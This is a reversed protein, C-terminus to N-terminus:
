HDAHLYVAGTSAQYRPGLDPGEILLGRVRGPLWGLMGAQSRMCTAHRPAEGPAEVRCGTAPVLDGRPVLAIPHAGFQGAAVASAEAATAYLALVSGSTEQGQDRREDPSQCAALMCLLSAMLLRLQLQMGNGENTMM